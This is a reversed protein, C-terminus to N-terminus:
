VLCSQKKNNDNSNNNNNWYNKSSFFLFCQGRIERRKKKQRVICLIYKTMQTQTNKWLFFFSTDDNDNTEIHFYFFFTWKQLIICNSINLWWKKTHIFFSFLFFLFFFFPLFYFVFVVLSYFVCSCFKQLINWKKKYCFFGISFFFAYWSSAPQRTNNAPPTRSSDSIDDTSPGATIAALNTRTLQQKEDALEQWRQLNSRYFLIINKFFSLAFTIQKYKAGDLMPKTEPLVSAILSYCPLCISQIFYM